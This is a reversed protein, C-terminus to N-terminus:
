RVEEVLSLYLEELALSSQFSTLQIGVENILHNQMAARDIESGEFSIVANKGDVNIEKV